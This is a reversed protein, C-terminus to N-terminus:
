QHSHTVECKYIWPQSSWIMDIQLIIEMMNKQDSTLSVLMYNRLNEKKSKKFIPIVNAKEWDEIVEELLLTKEFIM